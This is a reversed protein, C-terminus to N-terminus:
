GAPNRPWAPKPQRGRGNWPLAWRDAILLASVLAPSGKELVWVHADRREGYKDPKMTELVLATGAPWRRACEDRTEPGGPDDLELAAMGLIRISWRSYDRMWRDATVYVTDGDHWEVVVANIRPLAPFPFTSGAAV